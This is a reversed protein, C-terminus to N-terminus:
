GEKKIIERRREPLKETAPFDPFYKKMVAPTLRSGDLFQWKGPEVEVGFQFGHARVLGAPADMEVLTPVVVYHRTESKVFKFPQLMDFRVMKMNLEAMQTKLAEAAELVKEKGGFDAVVPEYMLDIGATLNGKLTADAVPRLLSLVTQENAVLPLALGFFILLRAVFKM